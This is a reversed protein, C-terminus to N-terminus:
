PQPLLSSAGDKVGYDGGAGPTLLLDQLGLVVAVRGSIQDANDVTVVQGDIGDNERVLAVFPYQTELMEAAVVPHFAQALTEAVTALVVPDVVPTGPGGALLVVPQDGGGIGDFASGGQVDVFGEIALRDLLDSETSDPGTALRTGLEQAASESLADPETTVPMGLATALDVRAEEDSLGMRATLVMEIVVSAGASQLASRVTDVESADVGELTVLVVERGTLRGEVLLPEVAQAFRDRLRVESRLESVQRRLEDASKVAAETRRDLDQILGQNVVTTGVLVGLALALFFAVISVLHYRFSIV